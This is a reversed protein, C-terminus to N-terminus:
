SGLRPRTPSMTATLQSASSRWRSTASDHIAEAAVEAVQDVRRWRGGVVLDSGKFEGAATPSAAAPDSRGRRATRIAGYGGPAILASVRSLGAAPAWGAATM